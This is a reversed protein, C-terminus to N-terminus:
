RTARLERRVFVLLWALVVNALGLGGYIVLSFIFRLLFAPHGPDRLAMICGLVALGCFLIASVLAVVMGTLAARRSGRRVLFSCWINTGGFGLAVLLQGGVIALIPWMGGIGGGGMEKLMFFMAGTICLAWTCDLIGVVLLMIWAGRRVRTMPIRQVLTYELPQEPITM